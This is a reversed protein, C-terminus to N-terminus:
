QRRSIPCEYNGSNEEIRRPLPSMGFDHEGIFGTSLIVEQLVDIFSQGTASFVAVPKGGALLLANVVQMSPKARKSSSRVEHSSRGCENVVRSKGEDQRYVSLREYAQCLWAL